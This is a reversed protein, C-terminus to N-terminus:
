QGGSKKKYGHGSKQRGELPGAELLDRYLEETTDLMRDIGFREKVLRQGEAGLRARLEKDSLLQVIAAGLALSDKVPVTIGNKNNDVIETLPGLDTSVVPRAMAMAQVVSQPIGENAYSPQAYVDLSALVDPVDSRHGTMLVFEELGNEKILEVLAAERPGAGAIIFRADPFKERVVSAAGIFYDHGKWSRLVSVMGVLLTEPPLSLEVRLDKFPAGPMYISLDIGTPITVIKEREVRNRSILQEKIADATTIIKSPLRRYILGSTASTSVPTSIHRTRIVVTSSFLAAVTALWSDRSSHTNIIDPSYERILARFRRLTGFYDKKRFSVAVTELGAAAAREIIISDDQAALVVRHGREKMGLSENLIRIEQGGWGLSAETHLITM